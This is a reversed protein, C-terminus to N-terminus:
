NNLYAGLYKLSEIFEFITFPALQSHFIHNINGIDITQTDVFM